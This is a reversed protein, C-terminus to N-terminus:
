WFKWWKGKAGVKELLQVIENYGKKKACSLATEGTSDKAYVDAGADILLKVIEIEGVQSAAIIPTVNRLLFNDVPKNVDAGRELLLKVIDVYGRDSAISLATTGDDFKENVDAGADLLERLKSLDCRAAAVVVSNDRHRDYIAEVDHLNSNFFYNDAEKNSRCLGFNSYPKDPFLKYRVIVAYGESEAIAKAAEKDTMHPYKKRVTDISISAM